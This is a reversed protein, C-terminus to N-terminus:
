SGNGTLYRTGARVIETVLETESLDVPYADLANRLIADRAASSSFFITLNIATEPEPHRIFPLCKGLLRRLRGHVHDNFLRARERFGAADKEGAFQMAQLIAKRHERFQGVMVTVFRHLIEEPTGVTDEPVELDFAEQCADLFDIDALHLLASKGRFRGYFGGVSVGAKRAVEDVRIEPYSRDALLERAARALRREM